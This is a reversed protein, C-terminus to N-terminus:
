SCSELVFCPSVLLSSYYKVFRLILTSNRSIDCGQFNLICVHQFKCLISFNIKFTSKGWNSNTRVIQNILQLMDTQHAWINVKCSFNGFSTLFFISHLIGANVDTKEAIIKFQIVRSTFTVILIFWLFWNWYPMRSKREFERTDQNWTFPITFSKCLVSYIRYILTAELQTLMKNITLTSCLLTNNASNNLKTGDFAWDNHWKVGQELFGSLQKTLCNNSRNTYIFEV